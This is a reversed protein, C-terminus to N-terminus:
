IARISSIISYINNKSTFENNIHVHGGSFSIYYQGFGAGRFTWNAYIGPVDGDLWFAAAEYAPVEFSLPAVAGSWPEDQLTMENVLIPVIKSWDGKAKTVLITTEDSGETEDGVFSTPDIAHEFQIFGREVMMDSYRVEWNLKFPWIPDFRAQLM